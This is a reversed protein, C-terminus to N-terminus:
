EQKKTVTAPLKTDDPGVATDHTQRWVTQLTISTQM